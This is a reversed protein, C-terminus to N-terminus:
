SLSPLSGKREDHRVFVTVSLLTGLRGWHTPCHRACLLVVQQIFFYTFSNALQWYSEPILPFLRSMPLLSRPYAKRLISICVEM